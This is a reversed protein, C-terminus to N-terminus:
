LPIPPHKGRSFYRPKARASGHKSGRLPISEVLRGFEAFDMVLSVVVEGEYASKHLEPHMQLLSAADSPYEPIYALVSKARAACTQKFVRKFETVYNLKLAGDFEIAKPGEVLMLFLGVIHQVTRETPNRLGLRALFVCMTEMKTKLPGPNQMTALLRQTLYNELHKFNQNKFTMAQVSGASSFSTITSALSDKLEPSWPGSM